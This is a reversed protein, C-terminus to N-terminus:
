LLSLVISEAETETMPGRKVFAIKGDRSIIATYPLAGINNGYETAIYIVDQEGVLVPYNMNLEDAFGRVESAQQLAIGIIQLGREAFRDQLDIFMPIEERCPPCWTAWFNILIVQGHWENVDHPVGDMDPLNFAPRPIGLVDPEPLLTPLNVSAPPSERTITQQVLFGAVGSLFALGLGASALLWKRV